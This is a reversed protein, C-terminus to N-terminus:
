SKLTEFTARGSALRELNRVRDNPGIVVVVAGPELVVDAAPSYIFEREGPRRMAVVLLGVTEGIRSEGIKKGALVSSPAVTSEAVRASGSSRLMSDLFDVVHPRLIQSAIRMGGILAPSIVHSAGAARFKAVSGHDICKAVIPLTPRLYRATVVLFLNDKDNGLVAVLGSARDIGARTLVEEDTADGEVYVLGPHTQVAHAIKEPATEIVVFPHDTSAHEDIVHIGTAGAGCIITHGTLKELQQEMQAERFLTGLYGEVFFATLSSVSYLTAGMGSVILLMTYLQAPAFHAVGLVDEYGVTTLTISTMYMCDLLPWDRGALQGIFWYGLSGGFFVLTLLGFPKATRRLLAVLVVFRHELVYKLETRFGSLM